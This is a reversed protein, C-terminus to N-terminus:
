LPIKLREKSFELLHRPVHSSMVLLQPYVYTCERGDNRIDKMALYQAKAFKSFEPFGSSLESFECLVADDDEEKVAYCHPKIENTFAPPILKTSTEVITGRNVIKVNTGKHKKPRTHVVNHKKKDKKEFNKKKHKDM